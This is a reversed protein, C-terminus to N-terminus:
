GDAIAGLMAMRAEAVGIEFAARQEETMGALADRRVESWPRGPTRGGPNSRDTGPM